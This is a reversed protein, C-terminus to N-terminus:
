LADGFRGSAEKKSIKALKEIGSMKMIKYDRDSLNHVELKKNKGAILKYRGMVLGVGSSDMFSVGSFDLVVVQSSENMIIADDISERISPATHHDIEGKIFVYLTDNKNKITVSM